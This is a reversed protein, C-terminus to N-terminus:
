FVAVHEKLYKINGDVLNPMNTYPLQLYELYSEGLQMFSEYSFLTVPIEKILNIILKDAMDIDFYAKLHDGRNHDNTKSIATITKDRICVIISANYGLEQSYNYLSVPDFFRRKPGMVYHPLSKHLVYDKFEFNKLLNPYDWINDNDLNTFDFLSTVLRTGSSEPGTVIIFYPSNKKM